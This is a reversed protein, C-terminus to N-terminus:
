VTINSKLKSIWLEVYCLLAYIYRLKMISSKIHVVLAWMIFVRMNVVRGMVISKRCNRRREKVKGFMLESMCRLLWCTTNTVNLLMVLDTNSLHTQSGYWCENVWYLVLSFFFFFRTFSLPRSSSPLSPSSHLLLFTSIHIVSGLLAMQVSFVCMMTSLRCM